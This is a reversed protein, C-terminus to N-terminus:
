LSGGRGVEASSGRPQRKWESRKRPCCHYWLCRGSRWWKTAEADADVRRAVPVVGAEQAVVQLRGRGFQREGLRGDAVPLKALAEFVNDLTVAGDVQDDTEVGGSLVGVVQQMKQVGESGRRAGACAAGVGRISWRVGRREGVRHQSEGATIRLAVLVVAGGQEAVLLGIRG